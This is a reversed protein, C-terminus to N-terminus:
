LAGTNETAGREDRGAGRAGSWALEGRGREFVPFDRRENARIGDDAANM